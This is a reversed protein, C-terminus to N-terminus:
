EIVVVQTLNRPEDPDVGLKLATYYGLYQLFPLYLVGRAEDGIGAGTEFVADAFDTDEGRESVLLAVYAGYQKMERAVQLEYSRARESVLVCIFTGPDVISKPGHRFELTGYSETWVYSMEKIKLCAEQALGYYSGMGLYIYKNFENEDVIEKSFQDARAVVEADVAVVAQVDQLAQEKGSAQAIAAIMMWTMSSLSKTMVTSKEKGLPSILCETMQAMKSEDHCTIGCTTWNDLGHVSDLALIVETSEGSRSVGVLLYSLESVSSNERFLYIESSPYASASRGMWKRYASAMTQAQYFSSGSGIFIVEDYADTNGIYKQIWDKSQNLQEAAAAIAEAQSSIEPYTLKGKESM